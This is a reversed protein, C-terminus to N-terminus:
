KVYAWIAQRVVDSRTVETGPVEAEAELAKAKEDVKIAMEGPLDVHFRVTKGKRPTKITGAM